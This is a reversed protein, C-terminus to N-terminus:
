IRGGSGVVIQSEFGFPLLPLNFASFNFVSWYELLKPVTSGLLVEEDMVSYPMLIEKARITLIKEAVTESQVETNETHKTM